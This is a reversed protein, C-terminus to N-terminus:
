QIALLPFFIRKEKKLSGRCCSNVNVTAVSTRVKKRKKKSEETKFPQCNKSESDRKSSKRKRSVDENELGKM